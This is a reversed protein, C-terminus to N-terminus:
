FENHTNMMNMGYSIIVIPAHFKQMKFPFKWGFAMALIHIAMGLFEAMVRRITVEHLSYEVILIITFLFRSILLCISFITIEKNRTLTFDKLLDNDAFTLFVRSNM